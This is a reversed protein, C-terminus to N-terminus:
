VPARRPLRPTRAPPLHARLDMLLDHKLSQRAPDSWLNALAGPDEKLDYLEGETGEYLSCPEYATCVYGDRYLTNLKMSVPGHESEWQTLVRERGQADAEIETLPLAQGEVWGPSEIGAIRCFTQALDVHGVPARVVAPAIGARPAPCWILPLRMLADVHYPGKFLLGYDGQLEGHDTTFLVDTDEAWGRRALYELVRGCAEDILENEIHTYANIERIQDPTLDCPRFGRPSELNTWLSGDFYGRWHKPKSDLLRAAEAASGPYLEPLPLERWDVRHRESAPPDWPHHPDPFSMWVFWDENADLGDLWAMTREAVWDTHYIERPLDAPWVQIAGTDGGGATNQQGQPTVMPYFAAAAQPHAGNIWVDYHAHGTLFHNALEMHEFGRHPGYEGLGAMRNEYFEDASGLWPEFHAKGILATRYGHDRLWHAVTPTQEPLSVGNMWVGHSAVHQGTIITARAPMCVVNQNHARQYNVGRAALGDVVPTRAIRGGNCGLADFRMQDTTIFLIRRGM